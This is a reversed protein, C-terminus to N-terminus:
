RTVGSIVANLVASAPVLNVSHRTKVVYHPFGPPNMFTITTDGAAQVTESISGRGFRTRGLLYLALVPTGEPQNAWDTTGLPPIADSLAQPASKAARRPKTEDTM